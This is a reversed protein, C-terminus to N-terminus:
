AESAPRLQTGITAAWARIDDWDRHDGWTGGMLRFTRSSMRSWADPDLVGAFAHHDRPEITQRAEIIARPERRMRRLLANSRRGYAGTTAGVACVSFLWVSLPTLETRHDKLFSRAEPLWATDIIPSGVVVAGYGSLTAVDEVSRLDVDPGAEALAAAIVEAIERTSGNASAYAVLARM